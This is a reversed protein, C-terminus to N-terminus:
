AAIDLTVMQPLSEGKSKQYEVWSRLGDGLSAVAEEQTDGDGLVLHEGIHASATRSGDEAREVTATIQMVRCGGSLLSYLAALSWRYSHPAM